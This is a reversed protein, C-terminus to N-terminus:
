GSYFIDHGSPERRVSGARELADLAHMVSEVPVGLAVALGHATQPRRTVSAAIRAALDDTKRAALASPGHGDFDIAAANAPSAGLAETFRTLVDRTVARAGSHAGPRSMTVVDVRTPTFARCFDRLLALNEDTDNIGALLLVELFISGDYEARFDLLGQRISALSIDPHARNLRRYETEVLTDMSPLIIDARSLAARVDPDPLLSSNTLVAVPVRPFIKKAGVIIEGCDSNLCPEGLGGLTVVDPDAHGAAKWAALEDLIHRADVYAKRATTLAETVGAECYLCDFTCIRAGLLDLGLSLGLRGSVVPGFIYRLSDTARDEKDRRMSSLDAGGM